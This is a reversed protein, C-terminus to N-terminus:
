ASGEDTLRRRLETNERELRERELRDDREREAVLRLRREALEAREVVPGMEETHQVRIREIEERLEVIRRARDASLERLEEFDNDRDQQTAATTDRRRTQRLAMFATVAAAITPGYVLIQGWTLGSAADGAAAAIM